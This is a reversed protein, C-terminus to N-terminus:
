GNYVVESFRGKARDMDESIWVVGRGAQQRCWEKVGKGGGYVVFLVAGGSHQEAIQLERETYDLRKSYGRTAYSQWGSPVGILNDAYAAPNVNLDVFIRVGQSQWYRALWRKQYTRYLTIARPYDKYVSFNPEVANVCETQLLKHPKEWLAGFRYDETYFAVTGAKTGRAKAGWISIPLDIADAQRTIDLLPIGYDNDSPYITDPM